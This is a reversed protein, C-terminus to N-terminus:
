SQATAQDIAEGDGLNVCIEMGDLSQEDAPGQKHLDLPIQLVLDAAKQLVQAQDDPPCRHHYEGFGRL